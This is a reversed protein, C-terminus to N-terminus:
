EDYLTFAADACIKGDDVKTIRTKYGTKTKTTAVILRDGLVTEGSFNMQMSRVPPHISNIISPSFNMAIDSYNSNNLHNNEDLDCYAVTYKGQIQLEDEPEILRRDPTIGVADDPFSECNGKINEPKVITRKVFDMLVWHTTCVAVVKGDRKIEFERIFTAGKIEKQWSRISIKQEAYINDFFKIALKVIVFVQNYERMGYYTTGYQLLDERALQQMYKQLSSLRIISNPQVDYSEIKIIKEIVTRLM